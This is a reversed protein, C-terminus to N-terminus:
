LTCICRFLLIYKRSRKFNDIFFDKGQKYEGSRLANVWMKIDDEKFDSLDINFIDINHNEIIQQRKESLTM